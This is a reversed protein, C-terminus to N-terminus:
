DRAGAWVLSLAGSVPRPATENLRSALGFGLGPRYGYSWSFVAETEGSVALRPARVALTEREVGGAGSGGREGRQAQKAYV